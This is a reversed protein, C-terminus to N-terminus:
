TFGVDKSLQSWLQQDWNELFTANLGTEPFSKNSFSIPDELDENHLVTQPSTSGPILFYVNYISNVLLATCLWFDQVTPSTVQELVSPRPTNTINCRYPNKRYTNPHLLKSLHFLVIQIHLLTNWKIGLVIDIFIMIKSTPILESVKLSKEVTSKEMGTPSCFLLRCGLLSLHLLGLLNSKMCYWGWEPKKRKRRCTEWFLASM